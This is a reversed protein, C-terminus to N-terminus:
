VKKYLIKIRKCKRDSETPSFSLPTTPSLVDPCTTPLSLYPDIDSRKRKVNWSNLPRSDAIFIIEPLQLLIDAVVLENDDFDDSCNKREM